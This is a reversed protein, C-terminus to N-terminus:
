DAKPVEPAPQPNQNQNADAAASPAFGVFKINSAQSNKEANNNIKEYKFGGFIQQGSSCAEGVANYLQAYYEENHALTGNVGSVYKVAALRLVDDAPATVETTSGSIPKLLTTVLNVAISVPGTILNGVLPVVDNFETNVLEFRNFRNTVTRCQSIATQLIAEECGTLAVAPPQSGAQAAPLPQQRPQDGNCLQSFSRQVRCFRFLGSLLNGLNIVQFDM